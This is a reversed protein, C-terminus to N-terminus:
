EHKEGRVFVIVKRIFISLGQLILLAATIPIVTKIYYLPPSFVSWSTEQIVWSNQAFLYGQWLVVICFPFFFVLYGLIDLFAQKRASLQQYIVNVSVHANHLLAFPTLLMFHAAYLQKTTEFTWITPSGFVRRMAVEYVVLLTIAVVLFCLVRGIWENIRDIYHLIKQLVEM